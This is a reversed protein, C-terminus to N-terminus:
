IAVTCSVKATEALLGPVEVIEQTSWFPSGFVTKLSAVQNKSALFDIFKSNASSAEKNQSSNIEFIVMAMVSSLDKEEARLALMPAVLDPNLRYGAVEIANGSLLQQKLESTKEQRGSREMMAAAVRLRLFQIIFNEGNLVPQWAILREIPYFGGSAFDIALLAGTRLGWLSFSEVGQQKLWDIVDAINQLWIAWTADGFDGSSDGTGFLDPVVVDFGQSAFARAQQAVMRRSKNMEEAFAPVHIIARKLKNNESPYYLSFLSGMSCTITIPKM